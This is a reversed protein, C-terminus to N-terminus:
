RKRGAKSSRSKGAKGSDLKARQAITALNDIRQKLESFMADLPENLQSEAETRKKRDEIRAATAFDDSRSLRYHEARRRLDRLIAQSKTVQSESFGYTAARDDVFKDWKDLPPAPPLKM